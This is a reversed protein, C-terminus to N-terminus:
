KLSNPKYFGCYGKLLGADDKIPNKKWTSPKLGLKKAAEAHTMQQARYRACTEFNVFYEAQPNAIVPTTISLSSFLFLFLKKM